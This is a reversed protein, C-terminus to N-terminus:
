RLGESIRFFEADPRFARKVGLSMLSENLDLSVTHNWKPLSVTVRQNQMSSVVADLQRASYSEELASLGDPARPLMIIM